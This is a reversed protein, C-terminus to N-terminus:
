AFDQLAGVIPNALNYKAPFNNVLLKPITKYALTKTHSNRTMLYLTTFSSAKQPTKTPIPTSLPLHTGVLLTLTSIDLVSSLKLFLM